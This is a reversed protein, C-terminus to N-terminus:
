KSNVKVYGMEILRDIGFVVKVGCFNCHHGITNIGVDNVIHNCGACIGADRANLEDVFEKSLNYIKHM